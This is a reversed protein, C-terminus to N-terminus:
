LGSLMAKAAAAAGPPPNGKLFEELAKKRAAQDIMGGSWGSKADRTKWTALTDDWPRDPASIVAATPHGIQDSPLPEAKDPPTFREVAGQGPVSITAETVPQDAIKDLPFRALMWRRAGKENSTVGFYNMKGQNFRYSVPDIPRDPTTEDIVQWSGSPLLIDTKGASTTVTLVTRFAPLNGAQGIVAFPRDGSQFLVELTPGTLEAPPLTFVTAGNSGESAALPPGHSVLGESPKSLLEALTVRAAAESKWAAFAAPDAPELTVSALTEQFYRALIPHGWDRVTWGITGLLLGPKGNDDAKAKAWAHLDILTSGTKPVASRIGEAIADSNAEGGKFREIAWKDLRADIVPMPTAIYLKASKGGPHNRLAAAISTVAEAVAAAGGKAFVETAADHTGLCVIAAALPPQTSLFTPLAAATEPATRKPDAFVTVNWDPHAKQILAPWPAGNGAPLSSTEGVILLAPRPDSPAAQVTACALLLCLVRPPLPNM